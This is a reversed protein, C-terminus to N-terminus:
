TIAPNKKLETFKKLKQLTGDISVFNNMTPINTINAKIGRVAPSASLRNQVQFFSVATIKNDAADNLTNLMM